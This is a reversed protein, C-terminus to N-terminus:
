MIYTRKMALDTRIELQDEYKSRVIGPTARSEEASLEGHDCLSHRMLNWQLTRSFPGMNKNIVGNIDAIRLWVEGMEFPDGKGDSYRNIEHESTPKKLNKTTTTGKM